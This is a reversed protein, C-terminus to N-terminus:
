NTRATNVAGGSQKGSPKRLSRTRPKKLGDSSPPKSSNQSNKALQDELSQVREQLREIIEQQQQFAGMWNEALSAILAVVAEESEIYAAHNEERSPIRLAEMDM